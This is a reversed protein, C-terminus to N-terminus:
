AGIATAAMRGLNTWGSKADYRWVLFDPELGINTVVWVHTIEPPLQLGASPILGRRMAAQPLYSFDDLYVGLHRERASSQGLKRRNDPKTAERDVAALIQDASLIGSDPPLGIGIRGPPDWALRTGHTVRIETWIKRVADSSQSDRQINFETYGEREINAVLRDVDRRLKRIDASHSPFVWWDHQALKRPVFDSNDDNGLIAAYMEQRAASTVRTVEFPFVDPGSTLDFDWEGDSQSAIYTMRAGPVVHEVVKALISEEHRM